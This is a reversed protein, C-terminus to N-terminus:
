RKGATSSPKVSLLTFGRSSLFARLGSWKKKRSFCVRVFLKHGSFKQLYSGKEKNLDFGEAYLYQRKSRHDRYFQGLNSFTSSVLNSKIFSKDRKIVFEYMDNWYAYDRTADLASIEQNLITIAGELNFRAERVEIDLFGKLLVHYSFVTLVSALVFFTLAVILFIKKRLTM